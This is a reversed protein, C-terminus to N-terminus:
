RVQKYLLRNVLALIRYTRVLVFGAKEISRISAHNTANVCIFVNSFQTYDERILVLVHAFINKGRATPATECYHIYAEGKQLILPLAWHLQVKGPLRKVWSRHVCKGDLYGLYGTEGEALFQRYLALKDPTDFALVDGINEATARTVTVPSPQSVYAGQRYLLLREAAFM